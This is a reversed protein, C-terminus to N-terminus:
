CCSLLVRKGDVLLDELHNNGESKRVLVKWANRTEGYKDCTAGM